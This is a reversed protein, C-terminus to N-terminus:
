RGNSAMPRATAGKLNATLYWWETRFNPHAGHDKPFVLATGLQPAAFGPADDGLGGFGQAQADGSLLALVIAVAKANM